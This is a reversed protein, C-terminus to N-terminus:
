DGQLNRKAQEINEDLFTIYAINFFIAQSSSGRVISTLTVTWASLLQIEDARIQMDNLSRTNLSRTYIVRCHCQQCRITAM